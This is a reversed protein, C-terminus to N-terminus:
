VSVNTVARLLTSPTPDLAEIQTQLDQCKKDFESRTLTLKQKLAETAHDRMCALHDDVIDLEVSCIFHNDSYKSFEEPADTRIDFAFNLNGALIEAPDSAYLYFQTM